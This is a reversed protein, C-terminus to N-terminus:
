QGRPSVNLVIRQLEQRYPEGIKRAPGELLFLYAAQGDSCAIAIQRNAQADSGALTFECEYVRTRWGLLRLMQNNVDSDDDSLLRINEARRDRLSAAFAAWITPQLVSRALASPLATISLRVDQISGQTWAVSYGPAQTRQWGDLLNIDTEIANRPGFTLVQKGVEINDSRVVRRSFTVPLPSWAFPRAALVAASPPKALPQSGLIQANTGVPTAALLALLLLRRM